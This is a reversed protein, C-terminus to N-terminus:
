QNEIWRKWGQMGDEVICIDAFAGETELLNGLASARKGTNCMILIKCNNSIREDALFRFVENMPVNKWAINEAEYEYNERVDICLIANDYQLAACESPHLIKV